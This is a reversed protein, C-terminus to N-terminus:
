GSESLPFIIVHPMTYGKIAKPPTIQITSAFTKAVQVSNNYAM